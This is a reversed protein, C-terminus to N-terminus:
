LRYLMCWRSGRTSKTMNVISENETNSYILNVTQKQCIEIIAWWQLARQFISSKLKNGGPLFDGRSMQLSVFCIKLCLLQLITSLLIFHSTSSCRNSEVVVIVHCSCDCNYSWLFIVATSLVVLVLTQTTYVYLMTITMIATLGLPVVGAVFTNLSFWWIM